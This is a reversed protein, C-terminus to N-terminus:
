HRPGKDCLLKRDSPEAPFYVNQKPCLGQFRHSSLPGVGSEWLLSVGTLVQPKVWHYTPKEKNQGRSFEGPSNLWAPGALSPPALSASKWKM